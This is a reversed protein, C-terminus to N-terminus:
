RNAYVIPVHKVSIKATKNLNAVLAHNILYCGFLTRIKAVILKKSSKTM